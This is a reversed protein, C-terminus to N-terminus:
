RTLADEYSCGHSALMVEGRDMLYWREIGAVLVEARRWAEEVTAAEFRAVVAAEEPGYFNGNFLACILRRHALPDEDLDGGSAGFTSGAV